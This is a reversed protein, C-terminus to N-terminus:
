LGPFPLCDDPKREIVGQLAVPPQGEHHKVLINHGDTRATGPSDQGLGTQELLPVPLLAGLSVTKHLRKTRMFMPMDIHRMEIDAAGKIIQATQKVAAATKDDVPLEPLLICLNNHLPGLLLIGFGSRPDNGIVSRLEDGLIELLENPEGAHRM